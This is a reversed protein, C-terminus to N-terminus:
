PEEDKGTDSPLIEKTMKKLAGIMGDVSMDRGFIFRAPRRKKPDTGKEQKGANSNKRATMRAGQLIQHLYLFGAYFAALRTGDAM